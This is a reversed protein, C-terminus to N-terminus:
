RRSTTGQLQISQFQSPWGQRQCSIDLGIGSPALCDPLAMANSSEWFAISSTCLQKGMLTLALQVESVTCSSAPLSSATAPCSLGRLLMITSCANAAYRTGTGPSVKARASDNSGCREPREHAGAALASWSRSASTATGARVCPICAWSLVTCRQTSVHSHSILNTPGHKLNNSCHELVPYCSTAPPMFPTCSAPHERRFLAHLGVRKQSAAAASALSPCRGRPRWPCRMRASISLRSSPASALTLRGEERRLPLPWLLSTHRDTRLLLRQERQCGARERSQVLLM